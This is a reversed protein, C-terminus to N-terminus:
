LVRCKPEPKPRDFSGIEEAILSMIRKYNPMDCPEFDRYTAKFGAERLTITSDPKYHQELVVNSASNKVISYGTKELFLALTDEVYKYRKDKFLRDNQKEAECERRELDKKFLKTYEFEIPDLKKLLKERRNDLGPEIVDRYLKKMKELQSEEEEFKQLLSEDNNEAEHYEDRVKDLLSKQVDIEELKRREDSNLTAFKDLVAAAQPEISDIEKQITKKQLTKKIM